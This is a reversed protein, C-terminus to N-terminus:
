SGRECAAGGAPQAARLRNGGTSRSYLMHHLGVGECHLQWMVRAVAAALRREFVEQLHTSTQKRLSMEGQCGLRAATGSGTSLQVCPHLSPHQVAPQTSLVSPASSAMARLCDECGQGKREQGQESPARKGAAPQPSPGRRSRAWSRRQHEIRPALSRAHPLLQRQRPM